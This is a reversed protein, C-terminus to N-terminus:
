KVTYRLIYRGLNGEADIGEITARYTGKSDSNFFDISTVGTKDTKVKPAWYITSRLDGGFGGGQKLLDYKPSYFERSVSYGQANYTLLNGKPLMDQLQAFTIKSTELKRTIISVVGDSQYSRNIGSFGDTKFFEVTEIDNGTMTNLYNFDTPRGNVFIQVPLRDNSSSLANKTLYLNNDLATVGLIMTPLCIMLNTCDKFRIGPVQQDALVPMGSLASYDTHSPKKVLSTSKIVVEKLIHLNDYQRKSNTLLPQITSDINAVEDQMYPNRTAPQYTDGNVAIMLNRSNPNNRASIVIQSSDPFNLKSFKFNGVMDTTTESYLNKGPVQLRLNGKSIPMGTNNRLTGSVELGEQEPFLYIQPLKDTIINRYSIRRYGQTLMLIDLNANALTDKSIFYYNPKEVYGKIDSTLLINSFISTESNEDSPVKSEDVVAISFEGAVPLTANKALVSLKVKQRVTYTKKDPTLTLNMMDNHKIFVIRESLAVGRETFLTFQVIGTPFKSKPIAASYSQNELKTQAAFYIAGGSQAVLYYIRGQNAKFYPDNASLKINLNDPDNNYVALCIGAPKIRPIDYTAKVGDPFTINAKYTKGDEPLMTFIGMGLHQSTLEAVVAGANDTITGKVNLGLGNAGLAKFAVKSRVGLTLEGGEPFFQVDRQTIAANLPFRNLSEKRNGLDINATLTANKLSAAANENLVINVVGNQDTTGKGKSIEDGAPNTISWSVKKNALQPEGPQRYTIAASIKPKGGADTTNYAISANINTQIINGIAINKHYFYDNDFNRMWGTYARLHYNGQKYATPTLIINGNAVGNVVPLKIQNVLSDQNTAIDVYVINSLGSLQHKDITVYAKFWITDGASYYPKDLHLYVKEIPYSSVYKATKTIITNLSITDRQAFAPTIFYTALFMVLAFKKLSM